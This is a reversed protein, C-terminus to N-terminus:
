PTDIFTIKQDNHIIQSAGISQTIGGAEGAVVNTKRLYDLLKTKGHDVHGMITVVPPRLQFDDADRDQNLIAQLNGELIDEVNVQVGEREVTVEFEQAILSVTDFDISAQAAILIKNSM